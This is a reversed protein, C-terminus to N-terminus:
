MREETGSQGICAERMMEVQRRYIVNQGYIDQYILDGQANMEMIRPRMGGKELLIDIGASRLGPFCAMARRCLKEIEEAKRESFGLAKWELPHNNLHLNTIPGKSLRALCFDMREDQVVARLDYSFGRYEAKAYWREVICGLSLLKGVMSLVQGSDTIRQLRKTNVLSGGSEEAKRESIEEKTMERACTYLVMRGSGPQWRFAAVGAAGSGCVPKIFVQYVRRARMIELLQEAEGILGAEEPKIDESVSVGAAELRRKCGQKDLLAEIAEPKNLFEMDRVDALKGIERLQRRYDETLGGLQGLLGSDWVPPDIKLFIEGEPFDTRWRDWDLFLVHLGAERAARGLYHTRKTDPKGLVAAQRM